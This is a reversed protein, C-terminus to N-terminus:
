LFKHVKYTSSSKFQAHPLNHQFTIYSQVVEACYIINLFINLTKMQSARTCPSLSTLCVSICVASGSTGSGLAGSNSIAISFSYLWLDGPISWIGDSNILAPPLVIQESVWPSVIEIQFLSFNGSSYFFNTMTCETWCFDLPRFNQVDREPLSTVYITMMIRTM